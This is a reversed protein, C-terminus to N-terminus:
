YSSNVEIETIKKLENARSVMFNRMYKELFLKDAFIGVIGFPSKYEFTDKMITGRGKKIFEHIHTFSHFAGKEMVDIFRYPKEMETIRVTLKQRIGFHVAEWIVCDGKNLLGKTVGGV